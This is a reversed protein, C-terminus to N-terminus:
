SQKASKWDTNAAELLWKCASPPRTEDDLLLTKEVQLMCLCHSLLYTQALRFATIETTCWKLSQPDEKHRVPALQVPTELFLSLCAMDVNRNM